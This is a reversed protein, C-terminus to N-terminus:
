THEAFRYIMDGTLMFYNKIYKYQLYLCFIQSTVHSGRLVIDIYIYKNANGASVTKNM